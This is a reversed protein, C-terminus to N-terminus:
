RPVRNAELEKGDRKAGVGVSRKREGEPYNSNILIIRAAIPAIAPWKQRVKERARRWSGEEGENYKKGECM